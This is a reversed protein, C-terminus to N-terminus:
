KQQPEGHNLKRLDDGMGKGLNRLDSVTGRSEELVKEAMKVTVSRGQEAEVNQQITSATGSIGSAVQDIGQRTENATQAAGGRFQAVRAPMDHNAFAAEGQQKVTNLSGRTVQYQQHRTEAQYDAKIQDPNTHLVAKPVLGEQALFKNGYAMAQKPDKAIMLAAGDRGIHGTANDAPQKALWEIFPQNYNANISAANARTNMAQRNWADSESFSKQAEFRENMSKEYSGSTDTALRKAEEDSATHSINQSAQVAERMADQFQKDESFKEFKRLNDQESASTSAKAGLTIGFFTGGVGVEASASKGTSMQLDKEFGKALNAATHVAKSQEATVGQTMGDHLSESKALNDSLSVMDRCSEVLSKTSTKSQNLGNQYAKTAMASEQASITDSVNPSVPLNSSGINVIPTGDAMTTTDTRGDVFQVSGARYSAARSQSLMNTNAIQQNGESVNGFSYNGTVAEGAAQSAAGQSVNGLHSAMHVFSGVGKVLAIALFPISMALFGAMAAMDANINTLGVSSAITIGEPNSVSLMGMSKSQATMSMIFNLIAYLPAWMQLWILTQAWSLLIKVGFPLVALPIIFIFAAYVIAELVAKMTMLSESAMGGLTEYTSRQHLYARRVAFDPANGLSTSKKEIGDVVSHIMMQQKLIQDASKSLGSLFNYSLPLYKIFEQKADLSPSSSFLKAGFVTKARDLEPAWILNLRSVGERCSIIEPINAPEDKKHPERWVFSRIKSPNASVLGWLDSTHRLDELTYKYGLMAEYAVCQCVFNRMNEAIDENTIHFTKAQQILNSAMLFGSKHYKLDDVNAFVQDVQKTIEYGFQSVYHGLWALGLPVHDVTDHYNSVADRVHVKVSPVFLLPPIFVFPILAKGWIKLYDGWISYLATWLVAVMMGVRIMPTYLTGTEANLCMAIANLVGVLIEGNGFAIIEFKM